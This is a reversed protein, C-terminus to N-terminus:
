LGSAEESALWAERTITYEGEGVEQLGLKALLRVSPENDPHTGTTIRDAEWPGFVQNLGARCAETAYGKRHYDPHFVYGLDHVRDEEEEDNRHINLLGILKGTEKLCVALFGAEGSLWETMGKVEEEATPWPHDYKAWESAQYRVALEHLEQWDDPRFNRLVLRDTRLTVM